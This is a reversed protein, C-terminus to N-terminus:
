KKNRKNRKNRKGQKRIRKKIKGSRNKRKEQKLKKKKNRKEEAEKNVKNTKEAAEKLRKKERHEKVFQDYDTRIKSNKYVNYDRPHDIHIFDPYKDRYMEYGKKVLRSKFVNDEGGWSSWEQWKEAEKWMTRTVACLGYGTGIYRHTKINKADSM